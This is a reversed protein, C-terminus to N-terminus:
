FCYRQDNIIILSNIVIFIITKLLLEGSASLIYKPEDAVRAATRGQSNLAGFRKQQGCEVLNRSLRM